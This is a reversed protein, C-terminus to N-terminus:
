RGLGKTVTRSGEVIERNIATRAPNAPLFLGLGFYREAGVLVPGTVPREFEIDVHAYLRGPRRLRFCRADPAKGGSDQSVRVAVPQPYGSRVVSQAVIDEVTVKKKPFRDLVVPSISQWRSSPRRWTGAYTSMAKNPREIGIRQAGFMIHDVQLLARLCQARELSNAGVPIAMALGLLEDPRYESLNPLGLWAIHPQEGHGHALLPAGDGLHSLVARRLANTVDVVRSLSLPRSLRVSLLEAWPSPASEMDDALAYPVHPATPSGRGRVFAEELDHLRGPYPARLPMTGRASPVARASCAGEQVSVMVLSDSRGVHSIRAALQHLASFHDAPPDPWIYRVSGAPITIPFVRAQKERTDPLDAGPYNVPVYAKGRHWELPVADPFDIGPAPQSELWQLSDQQSGGAADVFAQFLRDPHPPWEPLSTASVEAAGYHGLFELQVIM